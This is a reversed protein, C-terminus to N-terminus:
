ENLKWTRGARINKVTTMSIDYYLSLGLISLRNPNARLEAVKAWTMVAAANREGKAHNGRNREERDATNHKQTGPLLHKPNICPPNDCRHRVIEDDSLVGVWTEYALRHAYKNRYNVKLRKYGQRHAAGRLEWCGRETVDWGRARLLSEYM